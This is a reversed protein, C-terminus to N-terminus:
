LEIKDIKSVIVKVGDNSTYAELDGFKNVIYKFVKIGFIDNIKNSLKFLTDGSIKDVYGIISNNNYVKPGVLMVINM